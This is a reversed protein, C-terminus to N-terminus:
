SFGSGSLVILHASWSDSPLWGLEVIGDTMTGQARDQDGPSFPTDTRNKQAVIRSGNGALQLFPIGVCSEKPSVLLQRLVQGLHNPQDFRRPTREVQQEIKPAARELLPDPLREPFNRHSGSGGVGFNGAPDSRGFGGSRHSAGASGIWQRQHDRTMPHDSLM